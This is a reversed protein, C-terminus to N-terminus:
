ATLMSASQGQTQNAAQRGRMQVQKQRNAKLNAVADSDSSLYDPDEEPDTVTEVVEEEDTETTGDGWAIKELKGSWDKVVDTVQSKVDGGPKSIDGLGYTGEFGKTLANGQQVSGDITTNFKEKHDGYNDGMTKRGLSAQADRINTSLTGGDSKCLAIKGKYNFSDESVKVLKDDVIQYVIENYIKM